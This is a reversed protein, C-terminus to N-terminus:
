AWEKLDDASPPLLIPDGAKLRLPDDIGNFSAIARWLSTKGFAVYAVQDLTERPGLRHVREGTRGGSTPNQGPFSGDDRVQQFVVDATARLPRGSDDFLKYTITCTKMVCVFSLTAGWQFTFTPPRHQPTSAAPAPVLRGGQGVTPPLSNSLSDNPKLLNLLKKADGAVDSAAQTADLWLQMTLTAPQSSRFGPNPLPQGVADQLAWVNSKTIVMHDPIFQCTIIDFPSDVTITAPVFTM